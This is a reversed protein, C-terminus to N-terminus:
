KLIERLRALGRSLLSKVTGEPKELIAAVEAISKEEFFRLAIVEQYKIPIELLARQVRAFEQTRELELDASERESSALESWSPVDLGADASLQDLSLPARRGRRFYLRIENTAIAYLWASVPVDTVRYRSVNKLAKLFTESTLDRAADYDGTRRAIYGFIPDFHREFLAGFAEPDVKAREILGRDTDSVSSSM